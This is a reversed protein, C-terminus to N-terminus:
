DKIVPPTTAPQKEATAFCEHKWLFVPNIFALKGPEPTNERMYYLEYRELRKTKDRKESLRNWERCVYKGFALQLEPNDKGIWLNTLYKRWPTSRFSVMLDEPKEWIVPSINSWTDYSTGDNLEGDVVFWGDARMPNPAFMCWYQDLRMPLAFTRIWQPVAKDVSPLTCINWVLAAGISFVLVGQAMVQTWPPIKGHYPEPLHRLTVEALRSMSDTFGVRRGLFQVEIFDWFAPPFFVLWGAACIWPFLGLNMTAALSIHFGIFAAPILTRLIRFPILVLIPGLLELGFTFGTLFKMLGPASLLWRGLPTTFQDLNMAYYIATFDQNWEPHNKLLATFFYISTMQLFIGLSAIMVTTENPPPKPYRARGDISWRLGLPLFMAWFCLLRILADGSHLILHNRNQLSIFFLWLLFTVLRTQYGLILAIALAGGVVMLLAQFWLAGSAMHFSFSWWGLNDIALARPLIGQDTYFATLSNSKLILDLLLIIGLSIRFVAFARPDIFFVKQIKNKISSPLIKNTM